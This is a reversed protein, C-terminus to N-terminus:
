TFVLKLGAITLVAALLRRVVVPDFRRSGFYSGLSGGLVATM